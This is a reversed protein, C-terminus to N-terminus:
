QKDESVISINNSQIQSAVANAVENVLAELEQIKNIKSEKKVRKDCIMIGVVPM